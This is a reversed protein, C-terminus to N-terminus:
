SRATNSTKVSRGYIYRRLAEIYYVLPYMKEDYWLAAFYLGIPSAPLDDDEEHKNLWAFGRSCQEQNSSALCCLALATEEITGSTGKRGGWSGDPNQQSQLFDRGATLMRVLKERTKERLVRCALADALYICVKATGYVPNKADETGQSGFWLPLWSGDKAQHNQLYRVAQNISKRLRQQLSFPMTDHLLAVSKSWALLAHGTLDACSSDFPLRGWGKCFTPLGGDCNQLDVLWLCGNVIADAEQKNGTYMELLALIAGSTDDADPVSGSYHTWGWSGPKAQNFPHVTTYQLDLLHQRIQRPNLIRELQSGLAKVALTTVWTSLNVDIPWSGDMRQQKRLFAVGKGVVDKDRQGAAMLCMSVFGTLPIAELFGGSDPMISNLKKMAPAICRNRYRSSIRKKKQMHLYIGVAILAPVAYSVVRLNLFRYLSSPLLALEFPLQPIREITEAPVAGCITLMSLIPVSFTYDKGYFHLISSVVNGSSFTINKTDLYKEIAALMHVDNDAPRCYYVAAYCLLSTSVNSPSVPTDGFGGDSNNHACLWTYGSCILAEDHPDGNIKLAVMAVATSLASSSLEGEWFGQSNQARILRACLMRFQAVLLEKDM